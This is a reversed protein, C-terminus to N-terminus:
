NSGFRIIFVRWGLTGEYLLANRLYAATRITRSPKLCQNNAPRKIPSNFAMECKTVITLKELKVYYDIKGSTAEYMKLEEGTDSVETKRNPQLHDRVDGSTNGSRVPSTSQYEPLKQTM